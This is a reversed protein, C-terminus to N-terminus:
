AMAGDNPKPETRTYTFSRPTPTVLQNGPASPAAQSPKVANSSDTASRKWQLSQAVGRLPLRGRIAGPFTPRPYATRILRSAFPSGRSVRLLGPSRTAETSNKRVVKLIRLMFSAGNLTLAQEASEKHLFEIYASGTSQGTVGDTVIHTKLIAGFKNFHRSLADKTAGFHVNSVFVTRSDSGGEPQGTTNSGAAGSTAKQAELMSSSQILDQPANKSLMLNLSSSVELCQVYLPIFCKSIKFYILHIIKPIPARSFVSLFRVKSKDTTMSMDNAHAIKVHSKRADAVKEMPVQPDFALDDRTVHTPLKQTNTNGSVNLIRESPRPGSGAHPGQGISKRAGSVKEMPVQPDFALADRTVHTRLKQTKTNGSVNLIKESSRPGSGAPPGQAILRGSRVESAGRVYGLVLSEKGGSAPLASRLSGLGNYRVSSNHGYEDINSLSGTAEETRRDRMYVDSGGHQNRGYFEVQNEAQINDINEYEKGELDQSRRDPSQESSNITPMRGLRSFVSGCFSDKLADEAAEAAARLAATAVPIRLDSNTKQLRIHTIDLTSDSALTSVVSCLRKSASESGSTVPPVTRVADRVAFQLLRRPAGNVPHTASKTSRVDAERSRKRHNHMDPSRTRRVSHSKHFAKEDAHSEHLDKEKALSVNDVVSRLPVTESQGRGITGWDRKRHGWDKKKHTIVTKQTEAEPEHNVQTSSIVSHVPLGRAANHSSRTDDKSSAAKPQVYLHLNSSLHDWLWSVFADNDDGLFVHLEKAAEDKHRGNRLLVVVYEALTDDSYDGMLESLKEKVRDQLMTVGESTFNAKFTRDEGGDM